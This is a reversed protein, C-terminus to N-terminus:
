VAFIDDDCNLLRGTAKIASYASRQMELPASAMAEANDCESVSVGAMTGTPNSALKGIAKVIKALKDV